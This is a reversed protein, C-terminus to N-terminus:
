ICLCCLSLVLMNQTHTCIDAATIIHFNPPISFYTSHLLVQNLSTHRFRWLARVMVLLVRLMLKCWSRLSHCDCIVAPLSHAGYCTFRCHTKLVCIYQNSNYTVLLLGGEVGTPFVPASAARGAGAHYSTTVEWPFFWLLVRYFPSDLARYGPRFAPNLGQTQILLCSHFEPGTLALLLVKM